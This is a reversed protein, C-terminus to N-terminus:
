VIVSQGLLASLAPLSLNLLLALIGTFVLIVFTVLIFSRNDDFGSLQRIALFQALASVIFGTLVMMAASFISAPLSLLSLLLFLAFYLSAPSLGALLRMYGIPQKFLYRLALQYILVLLLSGALNIGFGQM